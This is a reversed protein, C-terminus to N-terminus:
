GGAVRANLEGGEQAPLRVEVETGAGDRHRITFTGGIEEARERMTQLGFGQLIGSRVRSSDLGVGDDTVTVLTASEQKGFRVWARHAMSHKRVNTLAEQIIRFLHLEATPSFGYRAPDNGVDLQTEVGSLETFRKVYGQLSPILRQEPSTATRLNLIAERLDAYVNRAAEELQVLQAQAEPIKSSDLLVKVAQAKTNVYGLVQGVSDHMERAIREREELMAMSQVREQLRANEELSRLLQLRMTEFSEALAGIEDSRRVQVSRALDGGAIREAAVKLQRLPGAVASTDLWAFTLAALLVVLEFAIIRDRLRRIPGFTESESQGVGLGWPVTALPAFAMVHRDEHGGTPAPDDTSSVRAKGQAILARFFEPHEEQTFLEASQTSALVTGNIAVIAAHGTAGQALGDIFPLLTPRSLDIIGGLVSIAEEPRGYVPVAFIAVPVGQNTRVLGSSRARGSALVDRFVALSHPLSLVLSPDGPWQRILRGQRDSLVIGGSFLHTQSPGGTFADTLAGLDGARVIPTIQASLRDLTSWGQAMQESLQSATARAMALREDLVRDTATRVMALGMVGLPVTAVLLGIAVLLMIRNRLSM